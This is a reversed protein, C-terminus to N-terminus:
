GTRRWDGINWTESDFPTLNPGVDLNMARASVLRRDVLPLSAGQTVVIDNMKIWLGDNKQPDLEAQAEKALGM